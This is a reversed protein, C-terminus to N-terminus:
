GQNCDRIRSFHLAPSTGSPTRGQGETTLVFTKYADIEKESPHWREHEKFIANDQEVAPLQPASIL